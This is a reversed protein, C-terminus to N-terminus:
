PQSLLLLFISVFLLLSITSFEHWRFDHFEITFGSYKKGDWDITLEYLEQLSDILYQVHSKDSYKVTFDDVVVVFTVDYTDHRFLCPVHKSQHFGQIELTCVVAKSIYVWSTCFWLVHV